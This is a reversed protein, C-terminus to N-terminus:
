LAGEALAELEERFLTETQELFERQLKDFSTNGRETVVVEPRSHIYLQISLTTMAVLKKKLVAFEAQTYLKPGTLEILFHYVGKRLTRNINTVVYGGDNFEANLFVEVQDLIQRHEPLDGLPNMWEFYFKGRSDALHLDIYRVILDINAYGSRERIQGELDGIQGPSLANPGVVTAMILLRDGLMSLNVQDLYRAPQVELYEHITQEAVKLIGVKPDTQGGIFFHDLSETVVQNISGTASVDKALTNRIFLEVPARLQQELAAEMRKVRRSSIYASTHIHALCYIKDDDVKYLLRTLESAPLQALEHTITAQIDGKLRRDKVMELLGKSLLAAVIIFGVAALSFRKFIVVSNVAEIERDMRATYFVVAAVLLISLFNAFFLLFSGVAGTYAGLSICLGTNALPPVIATAIAVGPLAPSINEEVMAYAGAFGAFVAVLLDLLNPKTRNLMETTVELEPMLYGMCSALLVALVVGAIEAQVAKGFLQADGRVLALAVGFIPTMLPAVLMAGIVVATSNMMLGLTALSSSAAVMTYFRPAPQSGTSIEDYIAAARIDTIWIDFKWRM